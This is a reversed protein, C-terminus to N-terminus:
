ALEQPLVVPCDVARFDRDRALIPCGEVKALAYAFCDGLNLPYRLRAEAAIRAQEVDPPVFRIGSTLLKTELTEYLHPQQDRIRILAETLNVTSMRLEPAHVALQAAAWEADPEAFFVALVISTDVVM